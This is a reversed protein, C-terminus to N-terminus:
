SAIQSGASPQPHELLQLRGDSDFTVSNQQRERLRTLTTRDIDWYAAEQEFTVTPVALRREREGFRRLQFRSWGVICLSILLVFLGFWYLLNVLSALGGASEVLTYAFQLGLLWAFLSILPLWLYAYLAWLALTLLRDRRRARRTLVRRANIIVDNIERVM